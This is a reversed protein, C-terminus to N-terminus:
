RSQFVCLGLKGMLLATCTFTLLYLVVLCVIWTPILAHTAQTSYVFNHATDSAIRIADHQDNGASCWCATHLSNRGVRQDRRTVGTLSLKQGYLDRRHM